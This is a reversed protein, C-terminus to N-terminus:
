SRWPNVAAPMIPASAPREKVTHPPRFGGLQRASRCYLRFDDATAALDDFHASKCARKSGFASSPARASADPLPVRAPCLSRRRLRAAPSPPRRPRARKANLPRPRRLSPPARSRVRSPTTAGGARRLREARRIAYPLRIRDARRTVPSAHTTPAVPRPVAFPQCAGRGLRALCLLHIINGGAPPSRERATRRPRSPARQAAQLHQAGAQLPTVLSLAACFALVTSPPASGARGWAPRSPRPHGRGV